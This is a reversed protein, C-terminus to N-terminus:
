LTFFSFCGSISFSTKAFLSGEDTSDGGNNTSGGVVTTPLTAPTFAIIALSYVMAIALFFALAKTFTGFFIKRKNAKRALKAQVEEPTRVKKAM